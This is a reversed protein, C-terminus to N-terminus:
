ALGIRTGAAFLDALLLDVLRYLKIQSMGGMYSTDESLPGVAVAYRSISGPNDIDPLLEDGNIKRLAMEATAQQLKTPLSDQDVAWGDRTFVGARPWDLAQTDLKKRGIWRRGYVADVYQTALILAAEKDAQLAALWAAPDGHDAFYADAGTEDQYANANALGTGDELVLTAAM